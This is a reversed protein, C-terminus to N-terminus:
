ACADKHVPPVVDAGERAHEADHQRARESGGPSFFAAIDTLVGGLHLALPTPREDPVSTM